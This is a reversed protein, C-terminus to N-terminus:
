DDDTITGVGQVDDITAAGTPSSLNMFFTETPESRRDDNTGVTISKSTQSASFTLTGSTPSYDEKPFATGNATSYSVSLSTTATGVKTVTFQVGDGEVKPAADSIVFSVPGPPENDNITGTGQGDAITSGASANSLNLLMTESAETAADDITAVTVPFSTDSPTFTLTGSTATYDAGSTANGNATAYDVSLNGSATGSRSVTFTLTGGETVAAANGVAFSPGLPAGTTSRATRNDAKDLSYSTVIGGNVTGSHGAQTLRGRADYSYAITEGARAASAALMAAGLGFAAIPRSM